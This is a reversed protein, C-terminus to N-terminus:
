ARKRGDRRAYRALVEGIRTQWGPGEAKFHGLVDRPLRLTVQQKAQDGMPPRGRKTYTGTAARRVKGGVAIQARSAVDATLEPADDPDKWNAKTPKEKVIM